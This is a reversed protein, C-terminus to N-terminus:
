READCALELLRDEVRREDHDRLGSMEAVELSRLLEVYGHPLETAHVRRLGGSALSGGLARYVDRTISSGDLRDSRFTGYEAGRSPRALHCRCGSIDRRPWAQGSRAYGEPGM